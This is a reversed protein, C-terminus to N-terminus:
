RMLNELVTPKIFVLITESACVFLLYYVSILLSIFYSLKGGSAPHDKHEETRVSDSM